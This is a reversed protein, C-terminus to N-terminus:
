SRRGRNKNEIRGDLYRFALYIGLCIVVLLIISGTTETVGLAGSTSDVIGGSTLWEFGFFSALGGLVAKGTTSGKIASWVKSASTLISGIGM